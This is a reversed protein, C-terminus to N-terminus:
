FKKKNEKCIFLCSCDTCGRRDILVDDGNWSGTFVKRWITQVIIWGIMMGVIAITTILLSKLM